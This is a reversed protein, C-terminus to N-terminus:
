VGDTYAEQVWILVIFSGLNANLMQKAMYYHVYQSDMCLDMVKAAIESLQLM